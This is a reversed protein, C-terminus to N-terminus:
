RINLTRAKREILRPLESIYSQACVSLNTSGDPNGLSSASNCELLIYDRYARREGNSTASQVKVDFSLVDAGIERLANKCDEVIEDWNDPRNFDPNTELLWVCTSDHFHWRENEPTDRRMAKRCTYFCGESTIHLRYENSYNVFKEFLYNPLTKGVMWAELEAQNAILTNGRGQSGFHAKCVLSTAWNDTVLTATAILEQRTVVTFWPATKVGARDFAEKMRLKNSSTRISNISNIELQYNITAETTSGLRVLVRYPLRPMNGRSARLVGHSPHRSKINIPFTSRRTERGTAQTAVVRRATRAAERPAEALPTVRTARRQVPQTTTTRGTARRVAM